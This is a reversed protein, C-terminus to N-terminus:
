DQYTGRELVVGMGQGGGEGQNKESFLKISAQM